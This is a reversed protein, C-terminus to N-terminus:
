DSSFAYSLGMTLQHQCSRLESRPAPAGTLTLTPSTLLSWTVGGVDLHSISMGCWMGGSEGEAVITIGLINKQNTQQYCRFTRSSQRARNRGARHLRQAIFLLGSQPLHLFFPPIKAETEVSAM